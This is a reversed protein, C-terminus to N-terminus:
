NFSEFNPCFGFCFGVWVLIEDRVLRGHASGKEPRGDGGEVTYPPDFHVRVRNLSCLKFSRIVAFRNPRKGSRSGEVGRTGSAPDVGSNM